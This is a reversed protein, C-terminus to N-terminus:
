GPLMPLWWKPLKANVTHDCVLTFLRVRTSGRGNASKAWRLVSLPPSLALAAWALASAAALLSALL